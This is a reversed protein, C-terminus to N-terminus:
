APRVISQVPQALPTVKAPDADKIVSSAAEVIRWGAHDQRIYKQPGIKQPRDFKRLMDLQVLRELEKAVEGSSSYNVGLAAETQNFVAGGQKLVWLLVHLRLRRGFMLEGYADVLNAVFLGEGSV